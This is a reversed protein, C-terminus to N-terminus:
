CHDQFKVSIYEVSVHKVFIRKLDNIEDLYLKFYVYKIKMQYVYVYIYKGILTGSTSSCTCRFYSCGFIWGEQNQKSM